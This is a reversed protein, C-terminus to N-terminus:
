HPHLMPHIFAWAIGVAALMALLIILLMVGWSPGGHTAQPEHSESSTEAM